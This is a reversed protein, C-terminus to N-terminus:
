PAWRRLEGGRQYAVYQEAEVVPFRLICRIEAGGDPVITTADCAGDSVAASPESLEGDGLMSWGELVAAGPVGSMEVSVNVGSTTAEIASVVVTMDGVLAEDGLELVPVDSRDTAVQLLKIGGALVILLGCGVSLLLLTRTKVVSCTLARFTWGLCRTALMAGHSEFM